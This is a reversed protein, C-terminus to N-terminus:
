ISKRNDALRRKLYEFDLGVDRALSLVQERSLLNQEAFLYIVAKEAACPPLLSRRMAADAEESGGLQGGISRHLESREPARHLAEIERELPEVDGSAAREGLPKLTLYTYDKGPLYHHRDCRTCYNPERPDDKKRDGGIIVLPDFYLAPCEQGDVLYYRYTSFSDEICAPHECYATLPFLDTANELLLRATSNFIERRFNLVLTPFIFTLGRQESERRVVYALREDYFAAEDIIWTGSAPNRRILEELEFSDAIEAIRNGCREYGGRHALADKPYDPFRERDLRSRIFFVQRRDAAVGDGGGASSATVAAVPAAKEQAVAADRWVRASYETKGSGMPGIVLIRRSGKRFDFHNFPAHLRIDPFGLSRMFGALEPQM